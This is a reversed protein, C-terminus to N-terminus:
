KCIYNDRITYDADTPRRKTVLRGNLYLNAGNNLPNAYGNDFIIKCWSGIDDIYVDTLSYCDEFADYGISTVSDPIVVSKLSSCGRFAGSDIKTVTYGNLYKPITLNSSYNKDGYLIGEDELWELWEPLSSDIGTITCTTGDWNVYYDFGKASKECSTLCLALLIVTLLLVLKKM